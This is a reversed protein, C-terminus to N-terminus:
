FCHAFPVHVTGSPYVGPPQWYPCLRSTGPHRHTLTSLLAEAAALWWNHVFLGSQATVAARFGPSWSLMVRNGLITLHLTQVAECTVEEPLFDSGLELALSVILGQLTFLNIM